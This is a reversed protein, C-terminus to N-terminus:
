NSSAPTTALLAKAPKSGRDAAESLWYRALATNKRLGNSGNLYNRGLAFRVDMERRDRVTRYLDIAQRYAAEDTQAAKELSFARRLQVDPDDNPMAALEPPPPERLPDDQSYYAGDQVRTEVLADYAADASRRQQSTMSSELAKVVAIESHQKDSALRAWAVHDYGSENPAAGNRLAEALFRQALDINYAAARKCFRLWMAPDKAVDGRGLSYDLAIGYEQQGLLEQTITRAWELNLARGKADNGATYKRDLVFNGLEMQARRVEPHGTQNLLHLYLKAARDTQQPLDKRYTEALEFVYGAPLRVEADLDIIAKLKPDNAVILFWHEAQVLDKEAGYGQMYALGLEYAADIDGTTALTQNIAAIKEPTNAALDHNAAEVAMPTETGRVCLARRFEYGYPWGTPEENSRGSNFDFYHSYGHWQEESSWENATLFLYGKVHWVDDRLTQGEGSQGPAFANRDYIGQLEWLNALRWGSYGGIRVNQCYKRADHWSVDKGNDKGAWMLGTSPDVWYGRNQTELARKRGLQEQARKLAADVEAQTPVRPEGQAPSLVPTILCPAALVAGLTIEILPRKIRM